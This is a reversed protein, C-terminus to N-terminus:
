PYPGLAGTGVNVVHYFFSRSVEISVVRVWYTDVPKNTTLLFDFREGPNIIFSECQVPTLDFGDSAVVTLTHGDVSM